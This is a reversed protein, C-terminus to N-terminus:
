DKKKYGIRNVGLTMARQRMSAVTRNITLSLKKLDGGPYDTIIQRDEETKWTGMNVKKEDEGRVKLISARFLVASVGRNLIKSVYEAGWEVYNEKLFNIESESWATRKIKPSNDKTKRETRCVVKIPQKNIPTEVKELITLNDIDSYYLVLTRKDTSIVTKSFVKKIGRCTFKEGRHSFKDGISIVARPQNSIAEQITETM